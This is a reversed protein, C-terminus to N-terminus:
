ETPKRHQPEQCVLEWKRSRGFCLRGEKMSTGSVRIEWVEGREKERKGGEGERDRRM